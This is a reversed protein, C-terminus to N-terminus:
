YPALECALGIFGASEAQFNGRIHAFQQGTQAIAPDLATDWCYLTTQVVYTHGTGPLCEPM